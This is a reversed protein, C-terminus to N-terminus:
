RGRNGGLSAESNLHDWVWEELQSRLFRLQGHIKFSPIRNEARLGRVYNEKFGFAECVQPLDMLEGILSSPRVTVPCVDQTGGERRVVLGRGELDLTVSDGPSLSVPTDLVWRQDRVYSPIQSPTSCGVNEARDIAQLTRVETIVNM